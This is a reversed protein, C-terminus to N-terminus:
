WDGGGERQGIGGADRDVRAEEGKRSFLDARAASPCLCCRRWGKFSVDGRKGRRWHSAREVDPEGALLGREEEGEPGFVFYGSGWGWGYGGGGTVDGLGGRAPSAM